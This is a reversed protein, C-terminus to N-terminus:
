FSRSIRTMTDVKGGQRSFLKEINELIQNTSYLGPQCSLIFAQSILLSVSHACALDNLLRQVTVHIRCISAAMKGHALYGEVVMRGVLTRLLYKKRKLISNPVLHVRLAESSDIVQMLLLSSHPLM